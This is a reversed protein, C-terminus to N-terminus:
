SCHVLPLCAIVLLVNTVLMLYAVDFLSAYCGHPIRRM